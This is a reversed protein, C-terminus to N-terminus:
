LRTFTNNFIISELTLDFRHAQIRCPPDTLVFHILTRTRASVDAPRTSRSVDVSATPDNSQLGSGGQAEVRAFTRRKVKVRRRTIATNRTTGLLADAHYIIDRPIRIDHTCRTMIAARACWALAGLLVDIIVRSDRPFKGGHRRLLHRMEVYCRTSRSCPYFSGFASRL